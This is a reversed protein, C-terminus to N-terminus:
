TLKVYCSPIKKYTATIIIPAAIYHATINCSCGYQIAM